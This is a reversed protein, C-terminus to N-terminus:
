RVMLQFRNGMDVVVSKVSAAFSTEINAIRFSYVQGAKVAEKDVNPYERGWVVQGAANHMEVRVTPVLRDEKSTNQISGTLIFKTKGGDQEREMHLDAFSLGETSTVGFAEYIGSLVPLHMWKPFYAVFAMGLWLLAFVPVAIQFPRPSLRRWFSAKPKPRAQHDRRLQRLPTTQEPPTTIAADLRRVMEDADMAAPDTEADAHDIPQAPASLAAAIEDMIDPIHADAAPAAPGEEVPEVAPPPPAEAAPAPNVHWEHTCKGCRVTRGEPPILRDAVAFRAQCEPCTLIMRAVM